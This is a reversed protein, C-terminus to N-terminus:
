EHEKSERVQKTVCNWFSTYLTVQWAPLQQWCSAQSSLFTITPNNPHSLLSYIFIYNSPFQADKRSVLWEPTQWLMHCVWYGVALSPMWWTSSLPSSLLERSEIRHHVRYVSSTLFCPSDSSSPVSISVSILDLAPVSDHRVANHAVTWGQRCIGHFLVTTPM